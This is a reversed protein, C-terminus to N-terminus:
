LGFPSRQNATGDQNYKRCECGTKPNFHKCGESPIFLDGKKQLTKLHKRIEKGDGDFMLSLKKNTLALLGVIGGSLHNISM